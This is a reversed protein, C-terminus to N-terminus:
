LSLRMLNVGGEQSPPVAIITQKTLPQKFEGGRRIELMDWVTVM